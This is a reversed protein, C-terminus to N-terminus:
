GAEVFVQRQSQVNGIAKEVISTTARSEWQKITEEITAIRLPVTEFTLEELGFEPSDERYGLPCVLLRYVCAAVDDESDQEVYTAGHRGITFEASFHPTEVAM